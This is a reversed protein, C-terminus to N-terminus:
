DQINVLKDIFAKKKSLQKKNKNFDLLLLSLLLTNIFITFIMMYKMHSKNNKIEKKLYSDEVAIKYEIKLIEKDINSLVLNNIILEQVHYRTKQNLYIKVDKKYKNKTYILGKKKDKGNEKNRKINPIDKKLKTFYYDKRYFISDVKSTDIYKYLTNKYDNLHEKYERLSYQDGKIIMEQDMIIYSIIENKLTLKEECHTTILEQKTTIDRLLNNQLINFIIFSTTMLLFLIFM